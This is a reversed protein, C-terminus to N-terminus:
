FDLKIESVDHLCPCYTRAIHDCGVNKRVTNTASTDAGNELLLRVCDIYGRAAAALLATNGKQLSLYDTFGRGDAVALGNVLYFILIYHSIYQITYLDLRSYIRTGINVNMHVFDVRVENRANAVSRNELLLRVCDTFGNASAFFL